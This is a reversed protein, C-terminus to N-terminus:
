YRYGSVDATFSVSIKTSSEMWWGAVLLVRCNASVFCICNLQLDVCAHVCACACACACVCMCVCVFVCALM